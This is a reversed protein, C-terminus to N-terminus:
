IISNPFKFVRMESLHVPDKIYELIETSGAMAFVNTHTVELERIYYEVMDINNKRESTLTKHQYVNFVLLFLLLM